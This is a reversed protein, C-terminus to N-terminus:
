RASVPLTLNIAKLIQAQKQSLSSLVAQTETKGNEGYLLSVENIQSLTEIMASISIPIGAKLLQRRLLSLIMLAIVCYLTHVRLKSDTWHFIPRFSLTHPDKMRRFAAEVHSQSRYACVIQEDSWSAQDTFLITKGLLTKKLNRWEKTRFRWVLSPVGSKRAKVRTKFLDKMHRAALLADIRKQVGTVTPRKGRTLGAAHREIMSGIQELKRKRKQTERLLTKYQAQYLKKNFTVLVTRDIGFVKKETRHSWVEPLQRTDLRRMQGRSIELLEKHHTPVLSGVFHYPGNEVHELNENSNNGKDFVLTIDCVDGALAKCRKALEDSVSEFTVSDHQNGAYAH